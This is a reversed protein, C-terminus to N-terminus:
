VAWRTQKETPLMVRVAQPSRVHDFGASEQNGQRDAQEHGADQGATQQHHVYGDPDTRYRSQEQRDPYKSV